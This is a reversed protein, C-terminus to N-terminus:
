GELLLHRKVGNADFKPNPKVGSGECETCLTNPEEVTAGELEGKGGCLPCNIFEGTLLKTQREAIKRNAADLEAAAAAREKEKQAKADAKVLKLYSEHLRTGPEQEYTGLRRALENVLENVPNQQQTAVDFDRRLGQLLQAQHVINSSAIKMFITGAESDQTIGLIDRLLKRLWSREWWTKSAPPKLMPEHLLPVEVRPQFTPPANPDRAYPNEVQM